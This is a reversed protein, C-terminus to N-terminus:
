AAQPLDKPQLVVISNNASVVEAQAIAASALAAVLVTKWFLGM